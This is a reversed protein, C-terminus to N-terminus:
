SEPARRSLFDGRWRWPQDWFYQGSASQPQGTLLGSCSFRWPRARFPLGEIRSQPPVNPPGPPPGLSRWCTVTLLFRRAPSLHWASTCSEGRRTRSARELGLLGFLGFALIRCTLRLFCRRHWQLETRRSTSMRLALSRRVPDGSDSCVSVLGFACARARARADAVYTSRGLEESHQKGEGGM